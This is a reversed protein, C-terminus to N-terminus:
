RGGRKSPGDGRGLAKKLFNMWRKQDAANQLKAEQELDVPRLQELANLARDIGVIAEVLEEGKEYSVENDEIRQLRELRERRLNRKAQDVREHEGPPITDRRKIEFVFQQLDIEEGQIDIREPIQAGVTAGERNVRELLQKREFEKM